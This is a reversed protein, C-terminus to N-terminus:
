TYSSLPVPVHVNEWYRYRIYTERSTQILKLQLLRELCTVEKLSRGNMATSSFTPDARHHHFTENKLYQILGWQDTLTLEFSIDALLSHSDRNKSACGYVMIDDAYINVFYRLMIKPTNNIYPLFTTPESFHSKSPAQISRM